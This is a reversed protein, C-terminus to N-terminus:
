AHFRRDANGTAYLARIQDITMFTVLGMIEDATYTVDLSDGNHDAPGVVVASGAFPQHAGNILFFNRCDKLLGEEDVFVVDGRPLWHATEILGGVLNQLDALTKHEIAKVTRNEADIHVARM